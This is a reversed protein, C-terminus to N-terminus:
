VDDPRSVRRTRPFLLRGLDLPRFRWGTRERDARWGKATSLACRINGNQEM